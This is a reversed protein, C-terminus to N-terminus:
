QWRFIRLAIAFCVVLWAAIIGLEPAVQALGAGELMNARLADNVATLPLAQVLPQLLPPFRSSSFFVGSFVWMPVMALNMLGSAGEITKPRSAILLGLGGFALAGLLSILFLAVLSGRLPVGFALAGFALLLGAELVLMALRSIIFSLLYSARSMPTAVLRKLLRKRRADVISFGIGWVGSGLLNMGLLGPILFDIYRSGREELRVERVAVPDARGAQRQVMDDVLRRASVGEPRTHDFRYEVATPGAPVVVVAVKGTRLARAAASDDLVEAELLPSSDLRVALETAGPGAALVAVKAPGEPRSRFAIGLGAAMLVPFLFTWFV